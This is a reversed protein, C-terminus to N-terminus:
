KGFIKERLLSNVIAPNAKGKTQQMVQGVFWGLLKDKGAKIDAIKDSNDNCIKSVVEELEKMNTIQQLGKAEVIAKANKGEAWMIEFVDKAIKGSIVQSELLDVLEALMIPTIKSNELSIGEKNLFAFLNTTIWSAM